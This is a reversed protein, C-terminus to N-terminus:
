IEKRRRLGRRAYANVKNQVLTYLSAPLLGLCWWPPLGM